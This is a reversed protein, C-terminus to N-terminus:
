LVLYISLYIYQIKTTKREESAPEHVWFGNILQRRLMRNWLVHKATVLPNVESPYPPEPFLRNCDYVISDDHHQMKDFKWDSVNFPLGYHMLHPEHDPAPIYGPYIM